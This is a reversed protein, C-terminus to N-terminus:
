AQSLRPQEGQELGAKQAPLHSAFIPTKWYWAACGFGLKRLKEVKESFDSWCSTGTLSVLRGLKRKQMKNRAKKSRRKGQRSDGKREEIKRRKKGGGGRHYFRTMFRLLSLVSVMALCGRRESKREVAWMVLARMGGSCNDLRLVKSATALRECSFAVAECRSCFFRARRHSRRPGAPRGPSRRSRCGSGLWRCVSHLASTSSALM